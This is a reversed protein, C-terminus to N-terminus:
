FGAGPQSTITGTATFPNGLGSDDRWQLSGTPDNFNYFAALNTSSIGIVEAADIAKGNHWLPDFAGAGGTLPAPIGQPWFGFSDIQGTLPRGLAAPAQGMELQKTVNVQVGGSGASGGRGTVGNLDYIASSANFFGGWTAVVFYWTNAVLAGGLSDTESYLAGNSSWVGLLGAPTIHIGLVDGGAGTGDGMYMLSQYAGSAPNPVQFWMCAQPNTVGHPTFAGGTNLNILNQAGAFGASRHQQGIVDSGGAYGHKRAVFWQRRSM